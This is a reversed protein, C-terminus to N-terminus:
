GTSLGSLAGAAFILPYLREFYWLRAFYFGIPAATRWEQREVADCLWAAGGRLAQARKDSFQTPALAALSELALSTEEMSSDASVAGSWGGDPKQAAILWSAAADVCGGLEAAGSARVRELAAMVRATGYVPNEGAPCREHGFWLPIWAGDGRQVKRLFRVARNIARDVRLQLTSPLHERTEHWARLAHATIDPSSRDFPLRGWGRCFTPVGGDNNQLDLLWTVGAIVADRRRAGEIGLKLLALIAGATDDADPVGGPLPTWSWGGPAALTYTHTSRHQQNILWDAILDCQGEPVSSLDLARVSLTTLWTALNTDIPWSGDAWQSTEIFEVGRECVPHSALGCQVLNMVVFSTLPTAELFGGNQPQIAQLKDLTRNRAGDRLAGLIPNRTPLKAHRAQGISILAPLAYSVVPLRLVGFWGQPLAAVEFPLQRVRRWAERDPGLVGSIACMTLIPISFTKDEGYSHEIAAALRGPEVSGVRVQLWREARAISDAEAAHEGGCYRLAAWALVTTSVNSMSRITDGWGGDDNQHLVLWEGGCRVRDRLRSGGTLGSRAVVDLAVMATATSLASASLEGTWYPNGSREDLLQKVVAVRASEIRGRLSAGAWDSTANARSLSDSM